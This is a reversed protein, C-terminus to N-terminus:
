RGVGLSSMRALARDLTGMMGSAQGGQPQTQEQLRAAEAIKTTNIAETVMADRESLDRDPVPPLSEIIMRNTIGIAEQFNKAKSIREALNPLNPHTAAIGEVAGKVREVVIDQALAEIIKCAADIENYAEDLEKAKAELMSEAKKTREKLAEMVQTAATIRASMRSVEALSRQSRQLATVTKATQAELLPAFREAADRYAKDSESLDEEKLPKVDMLDKVHQSIADLEYLRLPGEAEVMARYTSQVQKTTEKLTQGSETPINELIRAAGEQTEPRKIKVAEEVKTKVEKTTETMTETSTLHDNIKGILISAEALAGAAKVTENSSLSSSAMDEKGVELGEKM